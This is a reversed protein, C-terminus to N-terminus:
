EKERGPEPGRMDGLAFGGINHTALYTGYKSFWKKAHNADQKEKEYGQLLIRVSETDFPMKSPLSKGCEDYHDYLGLQEKINQAAQEHTM